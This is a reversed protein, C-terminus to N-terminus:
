MGQVKITNELESATGSICYFRSRPGGNRSGEHYCQQPLRYALTEVLLQRHGTRQIHISFAFQGGM